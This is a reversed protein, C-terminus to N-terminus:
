HIGLKTLANRFEDYSYCADSVLSYVIIAEHEDLKTDSILQEVGHYRNKRVLWSASLLKNCVSSDFVRHCNQCSALGDLLPEHVQIGCYPCVIIV